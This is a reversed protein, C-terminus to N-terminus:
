SGLLTDAATIVNRFVCVCFNDGSAKCVFEVNAFKM